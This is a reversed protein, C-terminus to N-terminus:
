EKINYYKNGNERTIRLIEGCDDCIEIKLQEHYKVDRIIKKIKMKLLNDIKCYENNIEFIEDSECFYCEQIEGDETLFEEDMLSEEFHTILYTNEIYSIRNSYEMNDGEKIM